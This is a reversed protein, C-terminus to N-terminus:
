GYITCEKQYANRSEQPSRMSAYQFTKTLMVKMIQNFGSEFNLGDFDYM